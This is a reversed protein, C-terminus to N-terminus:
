EPVPPKDAETSEPKSISGLFARGRPSLQYGTGGGLVGFESLPVEWTLGLRYLVRGTSVLCRPTGRDGMQEVPDNGGLVGMVANMSQLAAGNCWYPWIGGGASIYCKPYAKLWVLVRFQARSVKM